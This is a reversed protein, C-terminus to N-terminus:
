LVKPIPPLRGVARRARRRGGRRPVSNAISETATAAAVSVMATTSNALQDAAVPINAAASPTLRPVEQNKPSGDGRGSLGGGVGRLGLAAPLGGLPLPPCRQPAGVSSPEGQWFGTVLVPSLHQRWGPPPAAVVVWFALVAGALVAPGLFVLFAAGGGAGVGYSSKGTTYDPLVDSNPESLRPEFGLPSASYDACSNQV